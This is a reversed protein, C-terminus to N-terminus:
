QDLRAVTRDDLAAAPDRAAPTRGLDVGIRLRNYDLGTKGSASALSGLAREIDKLGNHGGASGTARLRITGVPLAIDDVVVLLQEITLKYFAMASALFSSRAWWYM